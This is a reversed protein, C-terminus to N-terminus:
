VGIEFQQQWANAERVQQRRLFAPMDILPDNPPVHRDCLFVLALSGLDLSRYMMFTSYLGVVTAYLNDPENCGARGVYAGCGRARLFAIAQELDHGGWQKYGNGVRTHHMGFDEPNPEATM